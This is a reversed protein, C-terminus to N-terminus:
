APVNHPRFKCRKLLLKGGIRPRFIGYPQVGPKICQRQRDGCETDTRTILDNYRCVGIDCGHKRHCCIPRCRYKDFRIFVVIQVCGFKFGCNRLTRTGDYGDMEVPLCDLHRMDHRDGLRMM